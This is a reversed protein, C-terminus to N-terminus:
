KTLHNDVTDEHQQTIYETKYNKYNYKRGNFNEVLNMLKCFASEDMRTLNVVPCGDQLFKVKDPIIGNRCARNYITSGPFAIIMDLFMRYRENHKFFWEITREATKETEMTDGMIVGSRSHIGADHLMNLAEEIRKITIGKHMSKLIEDAASEVGVFVYRCRTTKLLEVLAHNISDIRLQISWDLDYKEMRHCFERVRTNDIAFLEERLAVYSIDYHAVLWDIESFISDLSRQRYFSGSPHFCFTCNFKCSRGGIVSVQSYRVGEDSIDPNKQLYEKYDFGEYDPMPLSNLDGIEDRRNTIIIEQQSRIALGPVQEISLGKGLNHLLEDMTLEGEGIIGFNVEPFAKMTAIPDGTVIGGGLIISVEPFDKHVWQTIRRLDNYEGSLGGIAVVDIHHMRIDQGLIKREDGQRHNLNITFVNASHTHKVYSSVYLIGMPMVYHGDGYMLYRPIIFLINLM